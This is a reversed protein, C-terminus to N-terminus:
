QCNGFVTVAATVLTHPVTDVVHQPFGDGVFLKFVIHYGEQVLELNVNRKDLRVIDAFSLPPM